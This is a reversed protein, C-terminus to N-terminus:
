IWVKAALEPTTYDQPRVWPWADWVGEWPRALAHQRPPFRCDVYVLGAKDCLAIMDKDNAMDVKEQAAKRRLTSLSEAVRTDQVSALSEIFRRSPPGYKVSMRYGNVRGQVFLVTEGAPVEVVYCGDAVETKPGARLKSQAGFRYELTFHVARTANYFMLAGDGEGGLHLKFLKGEALMPEWDGEITPVSLGEAAVMVGKPYQDKKAVSVLASPVETAEAVDHLAAFGVRAPADSTLGAQSLWLLPLGVRRECAAPPPSLLADKPAGKASHANVPTAMPMAVSMPMPVALQADDAVVVEGERMEPSMSMSFSTGAPSLQPTPLTEEEEIAGGNPSSSGPPTRPTDEAPPPLTAQSRPLSISATKSHVGSLSERSVDRNDETKAIIQTASVVDSQARPISGSVSTGISGRNVENKEVGQEPEANFADPASQPLSRQISTGNQDLKLAETMEELAADIVANVTAKVKLIVGEMTSVTKKLSQNQAKITSSELLLAELKANLRAVDLRASSPPDPNPSIGDPSKSLARPPQMPPATYQAVIADEWREAPHHASLTSVRETPPPTSNRLPYHQKTSERPAVAALTTAVIDRAQRLTATQDQEM